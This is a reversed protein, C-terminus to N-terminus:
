TEKRKLAELVEPSASLVGRYRLRAIAQDVLEPTVDDKFSLYGAIDLDLQEGKAISRVLDNRSYIAAGVLIISRRRPQSSHDSQAAEGTQHEDARAGAPEHAPEDPTALQTDYGIITVQAEREDPVGRRMRFPTFITDVAKLAQRFEEPTMWVTDGGLGIAYGEFSDAGEASIRALATLFSQSLNSFMETIAAAIEGPESSQLLQSPAILNRAVARYYKELIGGRERTEVLRVLGIRELERVHYHAKPAAIHLEEGVQTATMARQALAEYIRIRLPDAVARLQEVSQLSYSEAIEDM